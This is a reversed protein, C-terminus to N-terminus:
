LIMNEVKVRIIQSPSLQVDYKNSDKNWGKVTGWQGNLEPQSELGNVRAVIGNSLVVNGPRLSIEKKLSTAYINYREKTPCWTEVTGTKGNLEPQSQIGHLTVCPQQLLNDPRVSLMEEFDELEVLYRKTEGIYKQVMGRNGNYEAKNSLGKLSVIRGPPIVGYEPRASYEHMASSM